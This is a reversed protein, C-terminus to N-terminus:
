KFFYNNIFILYSTWRIKPPNWLINCSNHLIDVIGAINKWFNHYIYRLKQFLIFLIQLHRFIIKPCRCIMSLFHYLNKGHNTPALLYNAPVQLNKESKELLQLIYIGCSKFFYQLLQTYEECSRCYKIFDM